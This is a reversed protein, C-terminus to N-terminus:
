DEGRKELKLKIYRKKKCEDSCTKQNVKAEFHNGCVICIKDKM